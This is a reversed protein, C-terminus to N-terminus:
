RPPGPAHSSSRENLDTVLEERMVKRNVAILRALLSASELTLEVKLPV